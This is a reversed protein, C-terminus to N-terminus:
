ARRRGADLRGSRSDSRIRYGAIGFYVTAGLPAPVADGAVLRTTRGESKVRTGNTSHLDTVWLGDVMPVLAAHTKSISRGSDTVRIKRAEPYPSINDPDRGLVAPETLRIPEGGDLPILRVRPRSAARGSRTAAPASSSALVPTSVKPADPPLAVEERRAGAARARRSGPAPDHATPASTASQPTMPIARTTPSQPTSAHAARRAPPASLIEASIPRM